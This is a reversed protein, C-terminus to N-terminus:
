GTFFYFLVTLSNLCGCWRMAVTPCPSTGVAALSVALPPAPRRLPTWPVRARRRQRFEKLCFTELHCGASSVQEM